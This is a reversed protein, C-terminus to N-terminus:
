INLVASENLRGVGGWLDVEWFANLAAAASNITQAGNPFPSGLVNNRGRSVTGNYNSGVFPSRAQM